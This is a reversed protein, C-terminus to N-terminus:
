FQAAVEAVARRLLPLVQEVTHDTFRSVPASVGIAAAPAIGETTVIPMAITGVEDEVEGVAVAYGVAAVDALLDFLAKRKMDARGLGGAVIASPYLALLRERPLFALIARGTATLHAPLRYGMRSGVRVMRTTEVSDLFVLETGDLAGLHVTEDLDRVLGEVIPRALARVDMDRVVALGIEALASGARYAKSDLDQEVFGHYQLMAMLRHATSQAVGLSRSADAVRVSTHERFMLLLRLANDVSEIPYAPPNSKASGAM